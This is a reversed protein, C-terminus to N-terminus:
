TPKSQGEGPAGELTKETTLSTPELPQRMPRSAGLPRPSSTKKHRAEHMVRNPSRGVLGHGFHQMLSGGLRSPEPRTKKHGPRPQCRLGPLLWPDPEPKGNILLRLGPRAGSGQASAKTHKPKPLYSPTLTCVLKGSPYLGQAGLCDQLSQGPTRKLQSSLMGM